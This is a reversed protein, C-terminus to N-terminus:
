ICGSADDHRDGKSAIFHRELEDLAVNWGAERSGRTEDDHLLSHTFTLETGEAVPRLDIGVHSEGSDEADACLWTMPLRRPVVVGLYEGSGQHEGSDLTRFRVRFCGGVRASSAAHLVPGADPEWWCAIGEPATLADCVISPRAAIKRVIPMSTM